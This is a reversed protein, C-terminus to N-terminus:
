CSQSEGAPAFCGIKQLLAQLFLGVDGGLEAQSLASFLKVLQCERVLDEIGDRFM